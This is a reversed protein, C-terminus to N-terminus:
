VDTEELLFLVQNYEIMKGDEARIEVIKGSFPAALENMIKMAEIIGLIDGKKVVDGVAVYPKAEPSASRYFTGVFPAKIEKYDSNAENSENEETFDNRTIVQQKTKGSKDETSIVEMAKKLELNDGGLSLKLESLSSKEFRDWVEYIDKIDM